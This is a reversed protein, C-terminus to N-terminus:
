SVCNAATGAMIAADLTSIEDFDAGHQRRLEDTIAAPANRLFLRRRCSSLFSCSLAVTSLGQGDYTSVDRLDLIVNQTSSRTLLEFLYVSPWGSLLKGHCRYVVTGNQQKVEVSLQM